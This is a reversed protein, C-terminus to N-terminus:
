FGAGQPRKLTGSSVFRRTPGSQRRSLGQRGDNEGGKGAMEEPERWKGGFRGKAGFFFYAGGRRTSSAGAGGDFCGLFGLAGVGLGSPKVSASHSASWCRRETIVVSRRLLSM